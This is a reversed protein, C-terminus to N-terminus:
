TSVKGRIYVRRTGTRTASENIAARVGSISLKRAEPDTRHISGYSQGQDFLFRWYDNRVHLPNAVFHQSKLQDYYSGAHDRVQALIRRTFERKTERHVRVRGELGEGVRPLVWRDELRPFADQLRPSFEPLAM